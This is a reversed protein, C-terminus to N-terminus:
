ELTDLKDGLEKIIKDVDRKADSRLTEYKKEAKPKIDYKLVVKLDDITSYDTYLVRDGIVNEKGKYPDTELIKNIEKIADRVIEIAKLVKNDTINPKIQSAKLEVKSLNYIHFRDLTAADLEKTSSDYSNMTAIFYLNSPIVIEDGRNRTVPVDRQEMAAMLEGLAAETNARNIEDIIMVYKNEKDANALKALSIITGDVFVWCNNKTPRLGGITDNYSTAPNFCVMKIKDTGTNYDEGVLLSALAKALTTKGNGPPSVLLLSKKIKLSQLLEKASHKGGHITKNFDDITYEKVTNGKNYESKVINDDTDKQIIEVKLIGSSLVENVVKKTARAQKEITRDSINLPHIEQEFTDRDIHKITSISVEPEVNEIDAETDEDLTEINKEVSEEKLDKQEDTILEAFDSLRGTKKDTTVCTWDDLNVSINLLECVERISKMSKRPLEVGTISKKFMIEDKKVMITIDKNNNLTAQLKEVDDNLRYDIGM